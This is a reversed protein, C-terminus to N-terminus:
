GADCTSKHSDYSELVCSVDHPIDSDLTLDHLYRPLLLGATATTTIAM